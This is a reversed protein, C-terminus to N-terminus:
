ERCCKWWRRRKKQIRKDLENQIEEVQLKTQRLEDNSDKLSKELGECKSLEQLVKKHQAEEAMQKESLLTKLYAVTQDKPKADKDAQQLSTKLAKNEAESKKLERKTEALEGVNKINEVTDKIHNKEAEDLEEQLEQTTTQLEQITQEQQQQLKKM